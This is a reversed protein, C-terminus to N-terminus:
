EPVKTSSGPSKEEKPQPSAPPPTQVSSGSKDSSSSQSSIPKVVRIKLRRRAAPEISLEIERYASEGRDNRVTLSVTAKIPSRIAMGTTQLFTKYHDSRDIQGVSCDWDFHLKGAREGGPDDAIAVLRVPEGVRYDLKDPEISRLNPKTTSVRIPLPYSTSELDQRDRVTLTVKIEYPVSRRDLSSTRLVVDPGDGLIEGASSSWEYQLVDGDPDNAIATLSVEEGILISNQGPRITRIVPRHNTFQRYYHIVPFIGVLVGIIALSRQLHETFQRKIWLSGPFKTPVVVIPVVEPNAKKKTQNTGTQDAVRDHQTVTEHSQTAPNVKKFRVEADLAPESAAKARPRTLLRVEAAAVSPHPTEIHVFTKSGCYKCVKASDDNPLGCIPSLCRKM